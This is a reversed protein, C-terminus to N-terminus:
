CPISLYVLDTNANLKQNILPKKGPHRVDCVLVHTKQVRM